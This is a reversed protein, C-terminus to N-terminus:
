LNGYKGCKGGVYWFWDGIVQIKKVIFKICVVM